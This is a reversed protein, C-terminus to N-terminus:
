KNKNKEINMKYNIKNQNIQPTFVTKVKNNNSPLNINFKYKDINNIETRVKISNKKDTQSYNFSNSKPIKKKSHTYLNLLKLNNNYMNNNYINNIKLINRKKIINNPYDKRPVKRTFKYKKNHNNSIKNGNKNKDINNYNIENQTSNIEQKEEIKNLKSKNKNTKNIEFMLSSLALNSPDTLTDKKEIVRDNANNNNNKPIILYKFNKLKSSDKNKDIYNLKNIIDKEILYNDNNKSVNNNDNFKSKNKKFEKPKLKNENISDKEERLKYPYEIIKLDDDDDDELNNINIDPFKESTNTQCIMNFNNDINTYYHNSDKLIIEEHNFNFINEDSNKNCRNCLFFNM